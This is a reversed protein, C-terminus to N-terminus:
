TEESESGQAENKYPCKHHCQSWWTIWFSREMEIHMVKIVETFRGRDSFPPMNVPEPSYSSSMTPLDNNLQGCAKHVTNM